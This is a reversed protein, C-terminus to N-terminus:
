FSKINDMISEVVQKDRNVYYQFARKNRKVKAKIDRIKLLMHTSNRSLTKVEGLAYDLLIKRESKEMQNIAGYSVIIGTILRAVMQLDDVFQVQSPLVAIISYPADNIENIIATQNNTIKTIERNMAIGTPIAQIAFSVIRLRDQVKTVKDKFNNWQTKNATEITANLTQKQRMEKQRENEKMTANIELNMMPFSVNEQQWAPTSGGGSSTLVIYVMPILLIQSIKKM